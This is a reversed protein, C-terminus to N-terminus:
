SYCGTKERIFPYFGKEVDVAPSRVKLNAGAHLCFLARGM